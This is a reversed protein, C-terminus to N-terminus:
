PFVPLTLLGGILQKGVVNLIFTNFQSKVFEFGFVIGVMGGFQLAIRLFYM